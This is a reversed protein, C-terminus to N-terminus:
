PTATLMRDAQARLVLCGTREFPEADQISAPGTASGPWKVALPMSRACLTARQLAVSLLTAHFSPSPIWTSRLLCTELGLRAAALAAECGAHGAGVVILDFDQEKFQM